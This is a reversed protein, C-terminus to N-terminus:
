FVRLFLCLALLRCWWDVLIFNEELLGELGAPVPLVGALVLLLGLHRGHSHHILALFAVQRAPAAAIGALLQILHLLLTPVTQFIEYSLLATLGREGM